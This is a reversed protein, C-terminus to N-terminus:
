NVTMFNDALVLGTYTGDELKISLFKKNDNSFFDYIIGKDGNFFTDGDCIAIVREGKRIESLNM